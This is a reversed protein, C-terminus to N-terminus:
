MRFLYSLKVFLGEQTPDLRDLSLTRRGEMMRTFGVYFITGPSPEYQVLFQGQFNGTSEAPVLAGDVLLPRGTTPDTLAQSKALEYQGVARAFVSKSFQYQVRLRPIHVTSFPTDRTLEMTRSVNRAGNVVGVSPQEVTVTETSRRSIRSYTYNLQLQIQATPRYTVDPSLRVEFGRRAEDFIPVERLFMQGNLNLVTNLRLRPMFGWAKLM